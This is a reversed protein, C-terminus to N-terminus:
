PAARTPREEHPGCSPKAGQLVRRALAQPACDCRPCSPRDLAPAYLCRWGRARGRWALDFDEYYLFLREDLMGIDELYERRLLVACGSWGFVEDAARGARDDPELYGRDSGYGVELAVSGASNVLCRSADRLSVGVRDAASRSRRSVRARHIRAEASTARSM